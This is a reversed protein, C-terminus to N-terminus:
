PLLTSETSCLVLGDSPEVALNMTKLLEALARRNTRLDDDEDLGLHGAEQLDAHDDVCGGFSIGWTAKLRQALETLPLVEESTLVSALLMRLTDPQCEYHKQKVVAARPQAIGIRVTLDSFHQELFKFDFDKLEGSKKASTFRQYDESLGEFRGALHWMEYSRYVLERHRAFSARSQVRCRTGPQGLFDMFILPPASEGPSASGRILYAFLWCSLGLILSRIKAHHPSSDDLNRCLQSVAETQVQMLASVEDLRVDELEGFKADYENKWHRGQDEPDLLPALFREFPDSSQMIWLKSLERLKRGTESRELVRAIFYGAFGDKRKHNTVFRSSTLTYDNGFQSYPPFAAFVASDNDAAAHVQQRLAELKTRDIRPSIREGSRLAEILNEPLYDEKLGKGHSTVAGKNLWELLYWNETVALFYGTAFHVPKM